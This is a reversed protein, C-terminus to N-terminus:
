SFQKLYKIIDATKKSYSNVVSHPINGSPDVHAFRYVKTSNGNPVLVFGSINVISRVYKDKNIPVHGSDVSWMIIYTINDDIFIHQEFVTERPWLPWQLNNVQRILRYDKSSKIVQYETVDSDFKKMEEYNSYIRLIHNLISDVSNNIDSYARFCKIQSGKIVLSETGINDILGEAVWENSNMISLLYIYKEELQLNM